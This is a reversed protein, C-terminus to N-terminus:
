LLIEGIEIWSGCVHDPEVAPEEDSDAPGSVGTFLIAKMGVQKAGKVDTRLMDGIHWSAEASCGARELVMSYADPHPKSFGTEDSFVFSDFHVAIGANELYKRLVRGPSYMTDSIVALPYQEALEPLVDEVGEVLDPPGEWLSEEFAAVLEALEQKTAPIDLNNVVSRVLEDTTPTRREDFWVRHFERSTQRTAEEVAQQSLSDMYNRAVQKLANFRVESRKAGGTEGKVLTNWFDISIMTSTSDTMGNGTENQIFPANRKEFARDPLM